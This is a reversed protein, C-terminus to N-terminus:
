YCHWARAESIEYYKYNYISFCISFDDECHFSLSSLVDPKINCNPIMMETADLEKACVLADIILQKLPFQMSTVTSITFQMYIKSTLRFSVLDTINNAENEVVYTYVYNPMTPCLYYHVFEEESNFVQRFEFQSSWKNILALASPVDESTMRRWGPTRPSSPLQSSTPYNYFYRWVHVNFLSKIISSSMFTVILHNINYLNVRRMLEKYLMYFLRKDKYKPHPILFGKMCIILVGGISICVPHALVVGVLKGNTARIGFQWEDKTNPHMTYFNIDTNNNNDHRSYKNMFKVVEERNNFSLAVWHFGQPLSYSEQRVHEPLPKIPGVEGIEQGHWLFPLGAYVDAEECVLSKVALSSLEDHKRKMSTYARYILEQPIQWTLEVCGTKIEILVLGGELVQEIKYQHKQLDLITLKSPDKKYKEVLPIFNKFPTIKYECLILDSIKKNYYIAKYKELSKIAEPSRSAETVATLLRTDFWNWHESKTLTDLLGNVSPAVEIQPVLKKPLNSGLAKIERICARQLLPLDGSTLIDKEISSTLKRYADHITWKKSFKVVAKSKALFLCTALM